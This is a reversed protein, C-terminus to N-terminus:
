FKANKTCDWNFTIPAGAAAGSPLTPTYTFSYRAASLTVRDMVAAPVQDTQEILGVVIDQLTVKYRVVSAATAGASQFTIEGTAIRQGQTVAGILLPSSKDLSKTITIAGCTVKGASSGGSSTAGGPTNSMAQSYSSVVIDDKHGPAAAEGPIGQLKLFITEAAVAPGSAVLTAVM